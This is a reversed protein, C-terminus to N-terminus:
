RASRTGSPVASISATSNLRPGACITQGDPSVDLSTWTGEDTTFEITDTPKLPLEEEEKKKDKDDEKKKEQKKETAGAFTLVADPPAMLGPALLFMAVVLRGLARRPQTM